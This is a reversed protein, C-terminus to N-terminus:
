LIKSTTTTGNVKISLVALNDKISLCSIKKRMVGANDQCYCGSNTDM